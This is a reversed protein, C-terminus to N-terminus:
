QGNRPPVLVSSQMSKKILVSSWHFKTVNVSQDKVHVILYCYSNILWRLLSLRQTVGVACCKYVKINNKKNAFFNCRLVVIKFVSQEDESKWLIGFEFPAFFVCCTCPHYDIELQKGNEDEINRLSTSNTPKSPGTGSSGVKAAVTTTAFLLSLLGFLHLPM